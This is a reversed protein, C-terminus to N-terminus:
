HDRVEHLIDFFDLSGINLLICFLKYKGFAGGVKARKRPLFANIWLLFLMVTFTKHYEIKMCFIIFFQQITWFNLTIQFISRDSQDLAKACLDQSYSNEWIYSKRLFNALWLVSWKLGNRALVLSEIKRLLGFVRNKGKKGLIELVLIKGSIHNECFALWGYSM